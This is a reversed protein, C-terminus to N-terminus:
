VSIGCIDLPHKSSVPSDTSRFLIVGKITNLPSVAAAESYLYMDNYATSEERFYNELTDMYAEYVHDVGHASTEKRCGTGCWNRRRQKEICVVCYCTSTAIANGAAM